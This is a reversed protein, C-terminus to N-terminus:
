LFASIAINTAYWNEFLSIMQFWFRGRFLSFVLLGWRAYAIPPRGHGYPIYLLSLPPLDCPIPEKSFDVTTNESKERRFLLPNWIVSLSTICYRCFCDFDCPTHKHQPVLGSERCKLEKDSMIKFADTGIRFNWSLM